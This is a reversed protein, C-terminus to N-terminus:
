LLPTSRSTGGSEAIIDVGLYEQVNLMREYIKDELDNGMQIDEEDIFFYGENFTDSCYIVSFEAKYNQKEIAPKKETTAETVIEGQTAEGGTEEVNEGCAALMPLVMLAALLLALIKITVSKM